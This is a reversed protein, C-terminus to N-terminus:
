QPVSIEISPPVPLLVSTARAAAVIEEELLLRKQVWPSLRSINLHGPRVFNREAGYRGAVPIFEAMLALAADRTPIFALTEPM